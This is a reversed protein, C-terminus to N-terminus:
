EDKVQSPTSRCAHIANVTENAPTSAFRVCYVHRWDRREAVLAAMESRRMTIIEISLREM